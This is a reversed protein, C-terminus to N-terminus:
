TYHWSWKYPNALIQPTIPQVSLFSWIQLNHTQIGSNALFIWKSIEVEQKEVLAAMLWSM